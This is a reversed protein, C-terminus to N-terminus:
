YTVTVIITDSYVGATVNQSSPISGYVTYQRTESSQGLGLLDRLVYSDSITVSSGSGDGWVVSHSPDTFLNYNLGSISNSMTRFAYSGSLGTGLAVSYNVNQYEILFISCEVIINATSNNSSSNLHSYAGFDLGSSDVSCSLAYANSAILSFASFLCLRCIQKGLIKAKM